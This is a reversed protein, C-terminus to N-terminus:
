SNKVAAFRLGRTSVRLEAFGLHRMWAHFVLIGYLIIDARNAPLGALQKRDALPMSWLNTEHWEVRSLNVTTAEIRERDFARLGAEMGGLISASGGTGVLLPSGTGGERKLASKVQAGIERSLLADVYERCVRRESPVPPDSHPFQQLLRVAGLPLSSRFHVEGLHGALIQSSGGGVELVVVPALRYRPDTCVGEFALEAEREGSIIEVKAGVASQIAITLEDRNEADRTASTAIVRLSQAGHERASSAFEAAAKVTAQIRDTGLRHHDYLGEGLRTQCSQELLPTVVSDEVDAVLLKVSNTGVDIVARRAKVM